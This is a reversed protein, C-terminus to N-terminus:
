YKWRRHGKPSHIGLHIVTEGQGLSVQLDEAHDTYILEAVKHAAALDGDKSLDLDVSATMPHDSGIGSSAVQQNIWWPRIGNRLTIPAGLVSRIDDALTVVAAMPQWLWVPLVLVFQGRYMSKDSGTRAAVQQSSKSPTSVELASFHRIGCDKLYDGFHQLYVGIDDSRGIRDAYEWPDPADCIVAACAAMREAPTM